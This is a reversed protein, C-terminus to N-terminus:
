VPRSLAFLFAGSVAAGAASRLWDRTAFYGILDGSGDIAFLAIAFRWAWSRGLLLGRAGALAAAGLGWLFLGSIPGIARFLAAGPKDFEWLWGFRPGPVLLAWGVVGAIASAAFLFGAVVQVIRPRRMTVAASRDEGGVAAHAGRVDADREHLGGDSANALRCR